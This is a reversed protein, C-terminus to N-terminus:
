AVRRDAWVDDLPDAWARRAATSRRPRLLRDALRDARGGAACMAIAFLAILAWLLCVGIAIM